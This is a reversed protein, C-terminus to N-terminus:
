SGARALLATANPGFGIRGRRAGPGAPADSVPDPDASGNAHRAVAFLLQLAVQTPAPGTVELIPRDGPGADALGEDALGDVWEALTEAVDPANAIDLDGPLSMDTM